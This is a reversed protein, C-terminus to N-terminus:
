EKIIKKTVGNVNIFYIGNSLHQINLTAKLTITKQKLVVEGLANIVNITTNENMWGLEVNLIETTPNPYISFNNNENEYENIATCSNFTITVPTSTISCNSAADSLVLTYTGTNYFSGMSSSGGSPLWQFENAFPHQSFLNATQGICFTTTSVPTIAPNLNLNIGINNHSSNASLVDKYGDFNFDGIIIKQAFISGTEYTYPSSFALPIASGYLVNFKTSNGGTAVIDKYTDNNIDIYEVDYASGTLTTYTIPSNFNGGTTATIIALNGFLGGIIMDGLGDNNLDACLIKQINSFPVSLTNTVSSFTGNGLGFKIALINTGMSPIAYGVYDINGDANFDIIDSPGYNSGAQNLVSTTLATSFNGNSNLYVYIQNDSNQFATVVIDNYTDNNVDKTVINGLRQGATNTPVALSVSTMVSTSGYLVKLEQPANANGNVIAIDSKGDKNFDATAMAYPNTLTSYTAPAYFNLGNAVGQNIYVSVTDNFLGIVSFDFNGDGNYDGINIEHPYNLPYDTSHTFCSPTLNQANTFCQL